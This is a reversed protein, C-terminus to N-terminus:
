GARGPDDRSEILRDALVPDASRLERLLWKGTSPWSGALLLALEASEVIVNWCIVFTGGPNTSGLDDLLDSLGYRRDALEDAELRPPGAALV